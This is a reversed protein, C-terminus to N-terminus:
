AGSHCCACCNLLQVDHLCQSHGISPSGAYATMCANSGCTTTKSLMMGIPASMPSTSLMGFTPSETNAGFAGLIESGVNCSVAAIIDVVGMHGKQCGCGKTCIAFQLQYLIYILMTKAPKTMAQKCASVCACTTKAHCSLFQMMCITHCRTSYKCFCMHNLLHKVM